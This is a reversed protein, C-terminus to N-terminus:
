RDGVMLCSHAPLGLIRMAIHAMDPSPKGFVRDPPRGCATAVAAVISGAGPLFGHSVPFSADLNTAWFLAGNQLAQFARKMKDYTFGTDMAVTVIDTKDPEETTIVGAHEIGEVLRPEGIVMVRAGAQETTLSHILAVASNVVQDTSVEIGLGRIKEALDQALRTASNSVFVWRIGRASLERYVTQAGPILLKGRNVTGDLDALIGRYTKNKM